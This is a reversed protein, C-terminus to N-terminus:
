GGQRAGDDSFDTPVPDNRYDRQRPKVTKRAKAAKKKRKRVTDAAVTDVSEAVTVVTDAAASVAVGPASPRNIYVRLLLLATVMLLASVVTYIKQRSAPTM